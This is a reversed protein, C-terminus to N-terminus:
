TLARENRHLMDRRRGGVLGAVPKELPSIKM